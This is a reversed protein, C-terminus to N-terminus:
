YSYRKLKRGAESDTILEELRKVRLAEQRASMVWHTATKRYSAPLSQFFAWGKKSTKFKKEFEGSFVVEETEYSYIESKRLDRSNFLALGSPKMLGQRSLEEIKKINVASWISKPNRPTFRIMYSETDISKRVGDIWGYCLAQDVSQSWTMSPRGSNVKYFGVFLETKGKHNEDLWKRFDLETAFFKPEVDFNM